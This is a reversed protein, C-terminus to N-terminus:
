GSWVELRRRKSEQNRNRAPLAGIAEEDWITSDAARELICPHWMYAISDRAIVRLSLSIKKWFKFFVVWLSAAWDAMRKGLKAWRLRPPNWPTTSNNSSTRCNRSRRPRPRPRHLPHLSLKSVACFFFCLTDMENMKDWKKPWSTKNINSLRQYSSLHGSLM